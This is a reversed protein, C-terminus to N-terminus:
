RLIVIRGKEVKDEGLAISYFYIGSNFDSTNVRHSVDSALLDTSYKLTGSIDYINLKTDEKLNFYFQTYDGAPNPAVSFRLKDFLSDDEREESRVEPLAIRPHVFSGNRELEALGILYHAQASAVGYNESAIDLLDTMNQSIFTELDLGTQGANIQMKKLAFFNNYRDSEEISLSLDNDINDLSSSAQTFSKEQIFCDVIDCLAEYDGKENLMARIESYDFGISDTKLERVLRGFAYKGENTTLETSFLSLATSKEDEDLFEKELNKPIRGECANIDPVQTPTFTSITFNTPEQNQGSISYFYEIDELQNQFHTESNAPNESFVNGTAFNSAGQQRAIGSDLFSTSPVSFDFDNEDNDNCFYVLGDIDNLGQNDGNALNGFDLSEYRNKYVENIDNGSNRIVLGASLESTNINQSGVFRNEEVRFDSAGNLLVGVYTRSM